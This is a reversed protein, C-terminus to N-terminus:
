RRSHVAHDAVARGVRAVSRRDPRGGGSLGRDADVPGPTGLLFAPFEGEQTGTVSPRVAVRDGAAILDGLEIQLDPFAACAAITRSAARDDARFPATSM